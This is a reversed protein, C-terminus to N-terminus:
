LSDSCLFFFAHIDSRNYFRRYSPRVHGLEFTFGHNHYARSIGRKEKRQSGSCSYKDNSGVKRYESRTRWRSSKERDNLDRGEREKVRLAISGNALRRTYASKIAALSPAGTHLLSRNKRRQRSSQRVCFRNYFYMAVTVGEGLEPAYAFHISASASAPFIYDNEKEM